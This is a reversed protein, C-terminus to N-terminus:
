RLWIIGEKFNKLDEGYTYSNDLNQIISKNGFIEDIRSLNGLIFMEKAKSEEYGLEEKSYTYMKMGISYTNKFIIMPFDEESLNTKDQNIKFLAKYDKEILSEMIDKTLLM